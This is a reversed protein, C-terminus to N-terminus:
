SKTFSALPEYSSMEGAGAPLRHKPGAGGDIGLDDNECDLSKGICSQLLRDSEPSLPCRAVAGFRRKQGM